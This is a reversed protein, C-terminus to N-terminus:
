TKTAVCGRATKEADGVLLQDAVDRVEPGHLSDHVDETDELTDCAHNGTPQDHDSVPGISRPGLREAAFMVEAVINEEEAINRIQLLDNARAIQKQQRGLRLR